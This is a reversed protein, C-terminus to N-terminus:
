RMRDAVPSAAFRLPLPRRHLRPPRNQSEAVRWRGPLPSGTRIRAHGGTRRDRPGRRPHGRRPHGRRPHGRRPHGRRRRPALAHRRLDLGQGAPMGGTSPGRRAPPGHIGKVTPRRSAKPASGRLRRLGHAAATRGARRWHRTDGPAPGRLRSAGRGPPIDARAPSRHAGCTPPAASRLVVRWPRSPLSPMVACIAAYPRSPESGRGRSGSRSPSTSPSGRPPRAPGSGPHRPLRLRFATAPPSPTRAAGMSGTCSARRRSVRATASRQPHRRTRGTRASQRRSGGGRSHRACPRRPCSVSPRSRAPHLSAGAPEGLADAPAAPLGAWAPAGRRAPGTRARGSPPNSSSARRPPVRGPRTAGNPRRGRDRGALAPRRRRAGIGSRWQIRGGGASACCGRESGSRGTAATSRRPSSACRAPADAGLGGAAPGTCPTACSRM